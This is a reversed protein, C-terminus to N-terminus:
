EMEKEAYRFINLWIIACLVGVFRSWWPFDERFFPLMCLGTYAVTLFPLFMRRCFWGAVVKVKESETMTKM